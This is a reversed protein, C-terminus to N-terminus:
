RPRVPELPLKLIVADRMEGQDIPHGPDLFKQGQSDASFYLSGDVVVGLTPEDFDPHNMELIRASAITIGDPALDLRIVRNPIVGNQIAILSGKYRTLGDVGSLSLDKPVALPVVRRSALDVAYLGHYDSVYLTKGNESLIMGQTGHFADTELFVHLAGGPAITWIRSSEGDNVYVTGDPAVTLDDCAIPRAPDPSVHRRRLRGSDLDYEFVAGPNKDEKRYGDMSPFAQSAVWLTRRQSDTRMGLASLLGDRAAPVFDSQRGSADIHIIKRHRISAVFFSRTVPDYAVGEAVFGKEPITFARTVGSAVREQRFANMRALVSKYGPTQRISAFDPDRDLNTAVRHALMEELTRVAAESRGNLAQASALGYLAYIEGPRRRAIEEYIALFRARDGQDHAQRGERQLVATSKSEVSDGAGSASATPAPPPSTQGLALLVSLLFAAQL